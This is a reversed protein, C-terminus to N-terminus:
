AAFLVGPGSRSPQLHEIGGRSRADADLLLFPHLLLPPFLRRELPAHSELVIRHDGADACSAGRSVTPHVLPQREVQRALRSRAPSTRSDLVISGAHVVRAALRWVGGLCLQPATARVAFDARRVLRPGFALAIDVSATALGPPRSVPSLDQDTRGRRFLHRCAM